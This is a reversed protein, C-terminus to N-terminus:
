RVPSCISRPNNTGPFINSASFSIYNQPFSINYYIRGNKIFNIDSQEFFKKSEKAMEILFDIQYFERIMAGSKSTAGSSIANMELLTISGFSMKSLQMAISCGIVGGGIIVIDSAKPLNIKNLIDQLKM